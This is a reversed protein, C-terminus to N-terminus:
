RPLLTLLEAALTDPIQGPVAAACGSYSCYLLKSGLQSYLLRSVLGWTGMGMAATPGTAGRLLEAGIALEAETAPTFAFKACDAGSRYARAAAAQMASLAPTRQFDHASAIVAVGAAHAERLLAPAGEDELHAIEWDIAQAMPLLTRVRQVREASNFGAAGGEDAHRLTLLVPKDPRLALLSQESIDAPLTDLRLEVADCPAHHGAAAIFHRWAEAGTVSSILLPGCGPERFARQFVNDM